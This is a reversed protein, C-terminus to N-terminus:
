LIHADRLWGAAVCIFAQCACLVAPFAASAVYQSASSVKIAVIMSALGGVVHSWWRKRPRLLDPLELAGNKCTDDPLIHFPAEQAYGFDEGLCRYLHVLIYRLIILYQVLEYTLQMTRPYRTTTEGTKM